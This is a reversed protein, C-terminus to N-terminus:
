REYTDMKKLTSIRRKLELVEPPVGASTQEKEQKTENLFTKSQEKFQDFIDLSNDRFFRIEPAYRLGLTQCLKGRLFPM